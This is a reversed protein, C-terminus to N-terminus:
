DLYACERCGTACRVMPAIRSALSAVILQASDARADACFGVLATGRTGAGPMFHRLPPM